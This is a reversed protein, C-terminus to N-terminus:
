AATPAAQAAARATTAAALDSRRQSMTKFFEYGERLRRVCVDKDQLMTKIIRLIPKPRLYYRRYFMEVAEFIEEKSLGPYELTSQQLGDDHVIDGSWEFVEREFGVECLPDAGRVDDGDCDRHGHAGVDQGPDLGVLPLFNGAGLPGTREDVQLGLVKAAFTRWEELSTAGLVAYGLSRVTANM